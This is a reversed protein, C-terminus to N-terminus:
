SLKRAITNSSFQDNELSDNFYIGQLSDSTWGDIHCVVLRIKFASKSFMQKTKDSVDTAIKDQCPEQPYFLWSQDWFENSADNWIIFVACSRVGFFVHIIRDADLVLSPHVKGPIMSFNCEKPQKNEYFFAPAWVSVEDKSDGVQHLSRCQNYLSLSYKIMPNMKTWRPTSILDVKAESLYEFHIRSEIISWSLSSGQKVLSLLKVFLFALDLYLSPLEQFPNWFYIVFHKKSDLSRIIHNAILPLLKTYAILVDEMILTECLGCFFGPERESAMPKWSGLSCAEWTHTIQKMWETCTYKLNSFNYSPCVVTWCLDKEGSIPKLNMKDWFRLISLQGSLTAEHHKFVINVNELDLLMPDAVKKKKRLQLTGYTAFGVDNQDVDVHGGKLEYLDNLSFINFKQHFCSEFETQFVQLYRTPIPDLDLLPPQSILDAYQQVALGTALAIWQNCHGQTWDAMLTNKTIWPPHISLFNEFFLSKFHVSAKPVASRHKEEVVVQKKPVFDDHSLSSQVTSDIHYFWRGQPGYKKAYELSVDVNLQFPLWRTPCMVALDGKEITEDPRPVVLQASIQIIHATNPQADPSMVSLHGTQSAPIPSQITDMQPMPSAFGPSPSSLYGKGPSPSSLEHPTQAMPSFPTSVAPTPASLINAQPSEFNSVLTSDPSGLDKKTEFFDFDDDAVEDMNLGKVSGFSKISLGMSLDMDKIETNTLQSSPRSRKVPRSEKDTMPSKKSEKDAMPSKKSEKDAMPSRKSEKDTM